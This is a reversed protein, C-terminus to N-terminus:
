AQGLLLGGASALLLLVTAIMVIKPMPMVAWGYVLLALGACTLYGHLKSALLPASRDMAYRMAAMVVGVAAAAALIWAATRILREAEVLTDM